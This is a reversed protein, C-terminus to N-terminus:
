QTNNREESSLIKRIDESNLVPQKIIECLGSVLYDRIDLYWAIYQGHCCWPKDLFTSPKKVCFCGLKKGKLDLIRKKFIPDTDIRSHFYIAYCPLTSGKNRHVEGCEPCTKNLEIPSGFYGDQGKGARGIYVDYKDKYINVVTTM